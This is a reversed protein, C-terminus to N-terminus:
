YARNHMRRRWWLLGTGILLFGAAGAAASGAILM